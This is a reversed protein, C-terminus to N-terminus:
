VQLCIALLALVALLRALRHAGRVRRPLVPPVACGRPDGEGGGAM